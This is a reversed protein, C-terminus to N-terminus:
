DDDEDDEYDDEYDDFFVESGEKIEHVLEVFDPCNPICHEIDGHVICSSKEKTCNEKM